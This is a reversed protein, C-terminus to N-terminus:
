FSNGVGAVIVNKGNNYVDGIRVTWVLNYGTDIESREYGSHGFHYVSITGPNGGGTVIVTREGRTSQLLMLSM